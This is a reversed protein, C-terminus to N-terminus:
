QWPQARLASGGLQCSRSRELARPGQLCILASGEPPVRRGLSFHLSGREAAGALRKARSLTLGGGTRLASPLCGLPPSARCSWGIAERPLAECRTTTFFRFSM